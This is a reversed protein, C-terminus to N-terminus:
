LQLVLYAIYASYLGLFVFGEARDIKRRKLTFTSLLLILAAAMAVIIDVNSQNSVPAPRIVVSIGLILFVNFINSGVINGVAIDTKKKFAAVVSTAMEPLSTGVAVITVGIIREPVGAAAAIGVAGDVLIKGGGALGALGLVIWLVSRYVPMIKAHIDDEDPVHNKSIKFTYRLFVGFFVLFVIGETRSIINESGSGTIVDNALLVVLAGCFFLFPMEKMQTNKRIALPFVVASIGLILLINAINSGIVNGLAIDTSGRLSSVVSVTLEPASTGFAVITLGIVIDPVNLKKAVSAAGDVLLNAALIILVTGLVFFAANLLM